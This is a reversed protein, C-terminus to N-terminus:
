RADRAFDRLEQLNLMEAVEFEQPISGPVPRLRIIPPFYGMLGHLEALVLAAIVNLSPLNVIVPLTQWEESQLGVSRVLARSQEIFSKQPDFKAPCNIINDVQGSALSEIEAVQGKTLPHSYNVVIVPM